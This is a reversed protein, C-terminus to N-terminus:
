NCTGAACDNSACDDDFICASGAEGDTCQGPEVGAPNACSGSMCDDDSECEADNTGDRCTSRVCAYVTCDEDTSCRSGVSGDSCVNRVCSLSGECDDTDECPSLLSGSVCSGLVCHADNCDGDDECRSGLEGARCLGSACIGSTCQGDDDCQDGVDGPACVGAACYLGEACDGGGEYCRSGEEGDVCTGSSTSPAIRCLGACHDDSECPEGEAGSSCRGGSCRGFACQEDEYCPSGGSGDSCSGLSTPEGTDPDVSSPAFVCTSGSSCHGDEACGLGDVCLPGVSEQRCEGSVCEADDSCSRAGAGAIRSECAERVLRLDPDCVRNCDARDLCGAGPVCESLTVTEAPSVTGGDPLQEEPCECTLEPCRVVACDSEGDFLYGATRCPDAPDVPPRSADTRADGPPGGDGPDSGGGGCGALAVIGLVVALRVAPTPPGAM